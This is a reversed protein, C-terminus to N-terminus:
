GSTIEIRKPKAKEPKSIKITLLGDKMDATIKDSDVDDPLTFQRRYNGIRTEQYVVDGLSERSVNGIVTLTNKEATIEVQEKEVGPMDYKLIVENETESIDVAPMYYEPGQERRTVEAEPRKALKEEPAM